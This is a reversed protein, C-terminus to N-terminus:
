INLYQLSCLVCFYPHERYPGTAVSDLQCSALASKGTAYTWIKHGRCSLSKPGMRKWDKHVWVPVCVWGENTYIVHLDPIVICPPGFFHALKSKDTDEGIVSRNEFNNSQCVWCVIQSLTIM